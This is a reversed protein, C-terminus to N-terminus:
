HLHGDTMSISRDMRSALEINHTAIIACLGRQKVQESLVDMVQAASAPDLNGTPEDALLILPDNAIARAIAVRQCQGGSLQSPRHSARDSLGFSELLEGAKLLAKKKSAGNIIQPLAINEIASFEQLLHHGQYVFGIKQRRIETAKKDSIKGIFDGGVTLYGGDSRELLGLIHLLTSKGAGSAGLLAVMEGQMLDIDIGRLVNIERGGQVFTKAIGEARLIINKDM